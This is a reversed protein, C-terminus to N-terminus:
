STRWSGTGQYRRRWKQARLHLRDLSVMSKILATYAGSRRGPVNRTMITPSRHDQGLLGHCLWGILCHLRPLDLILFPLLDSSERESKRDLQSTLLCGAEFM